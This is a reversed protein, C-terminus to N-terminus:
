RELLKIHMEARYPEYIELDALAESLRYELESKISNYGNNNISKYQREKRNIAKHIRMDYRNM